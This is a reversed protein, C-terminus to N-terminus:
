HLTDKKYKIKELTALWESIPHRYLARVSHGFLGDPQPNIMDNRIALLNIMGRNKYSTIALNAILTMQHRDLLGSYVQYARSLITQQLYFYFSKANDLRASDLLIPPADTSVM